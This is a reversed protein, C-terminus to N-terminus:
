LGIAETISEEQISDIDESPIFSYYDGNSISENIRNMVGDIKFFTYATKDPSNNLHEVEGKLQIIKKGVEYANYRSITADSFGNNKFVGEFMAIIDFDGKYRGEIEKQVAEYIRSTSPKYEGVAKVVQLYSMIEPAIISTENQSLSFGDLLNNITDISKNAKTSYKAVIGNLLENKYSDSMTDDNYIAYIRGKDTKAETYISRIESLVKDYVEKNSM